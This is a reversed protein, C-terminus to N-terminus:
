SLRRAFEELVFAEIVDNVKIDDRGELGIGCELPADVERVDDKFRRLSEIKGDWVPAGDRVLRARANRQITGSVVKCGAIAGAKTTTFVQRIEATGIVTERIEPKLLGSMADKVDAVAEYIIEYLRVDVKEKAALEAAKPDPKVHFGIIVANSAAALLVDSESIQGVGRHIVRLKVEETTLKTLSDQLAEVSGDVDGKLVVLLESVSGAKIQSYLDTLTVHKHLRFEQERQLQARKAALERAQREDEMVAFTDGAQPAGSWGLIEAPTSPGAEAIRGGRENNMARVKGSHAGAM